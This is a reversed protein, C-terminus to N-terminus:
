SALLQKLHMGSMIAMQEIKGLHPFLEADVPVVKVMNYRGICDESPRRLNSFVPCWQGCCEQKPLNMFKRRLYTTLLVAVKLSCWFLSKVFNQARALPRDRTVLDKVQGKFLLLRLVGSGPEGLVM